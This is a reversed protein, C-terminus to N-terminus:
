TVIEWGLQEELETVTLYDIKLDNCLNLVTDCVMCACVDIEEKTTKHRITKIDLPRREECKLCYAVPTKLKSNM